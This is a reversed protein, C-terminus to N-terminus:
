DNETCGAQKSSTHNKKPMETQSNRNAYLAYGDLKKTVLESEVQMLERVSAASVYELGSRQLCDSKKPMSEKIRENTKQQDM